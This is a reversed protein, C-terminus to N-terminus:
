CATFTLPTSMMASQLEAQTEIAVGTDFLDKILGDDITTLFDATIHM